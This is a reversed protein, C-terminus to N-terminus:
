ATVGAPLLRRLRGRALGAGAAAAVYLGFAFTTLWFGIPYPTFFAAVLAAWTVLVAFVVALALSVGPRATLRQATAPPAVLLAFVLLSGTIQSASAVAVGLLVLFVAGLGRVPLGSAAATSSDISAWLLPRAIVALVALVAFALVVLTLVQGDGIGLFTGFLLTQVGGLFGDYLNYFLFGAALATAQVVGVVASEASYSTGGRVGPRAAVGILVAATVCFAFYGWQSSVGLLVAGAAGPFGVLSLTHGTFSQRRLVMFWGLAGAMIAVVTGARFATVMFHYSFMLRFDYVLDASFSADPM